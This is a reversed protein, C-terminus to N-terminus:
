SLKNSTNEGAIRDVVLIVLVNILIVVTSVAFITPDITTNAKQFLWISLPFADVTYLFYSLTFENFSLVFVLLIGSVVGNRILPLVVEGFARLPSAGLTNAAEQLAPDLGQLAAAVNRIMFPLAIISHAVVLQFIGLDFPLASVIMLLAIGLVIAPFIIPLEVLENFLTKGRFSLRVLAYAAPVGAFCCIAATLGAVSISTTLSERLRVLDADHGFLMDYTAAYWKLSLGPPPFGISSSPTFSILIVAVIPLLMIGLIVATACTVILAECRQMGILSTSRRM